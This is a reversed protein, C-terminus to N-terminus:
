ATMLEGPLYTLMTELHFQAMRVHSITNKPHAINGVVVKKYVWDCYLSQNM